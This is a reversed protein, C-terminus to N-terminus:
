FYDVVFDPVVLCMSYLCFRIMDELGGGGGGIEVIGLPSQESHLTVEEAYPSQLAMSLRIKLPSSGSKWSNAQLGRVYSIIILRGM